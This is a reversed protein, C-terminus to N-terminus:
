ARGGGFTGCAGLWWRSSALVSLSFDGCGLNLGHLSAICIPGLHGDNLLVGGPVHPCPRDGCKSWIPISRCPICCPARPAILLVDLVGDGITVSFHLALPSTHGETGTTESLTHPTTSHHLTLLAHLLAHSPWPHVHHMVHHSNSTHKLPGPSAHAPTVSEHRSYVGDRTGSRSRTQFVRLLLAM